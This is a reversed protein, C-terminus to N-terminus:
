FSLAGPSPKHAKRNLKADNIVIAMFNGVIMDDTEVLSIIAQLVYAQGEVLAFVQQGTELGSNDKGLGGAEGCALPGALLTV